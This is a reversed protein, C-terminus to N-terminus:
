LRAKLSSVYEAMERKSRVGKANEIIIRQESVPLNGFYAMAGLNQSLAMGLGLPVHGNLSYDQEM